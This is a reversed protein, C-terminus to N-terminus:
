GSGNCSRAAHEPHEAALDHAQTWDTAATTSSGSTTTSPRCVASGHGLAHQAQHGRELGQPLHRPQRVDRLVANRPTGARRSTSATSCAPARSRRRSSGTSSTPEPLGAADLITPAVDIVHTFQHRPRARRTSGTGALARDHRQPHRGLALRGAQDVPVPHGDGAGLRGRLPQLARADRVRRDHASWSSRPRWRPWGTSSSWRTSRATSPARPALRRQRRRHLLGAHQRARGIQEIADIVRGVHHDTHELFGAYVEMQRALM